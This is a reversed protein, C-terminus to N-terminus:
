KLLFTGEAEFIGILWNLDKVPLDCETESVDICEQFEKRRCQLSSEITRYLISCNNKGNIQVTYCVKSTRQDKSIYYKILNKALFRTFATIICEDTNHVRISCRSYEKNSFTGEGELIGTIWGITAQQNDQILM